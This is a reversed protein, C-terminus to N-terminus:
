SKSNRACCAHVGTLTWSISTSPTEAAATSKPTKAKTKISAPNACYSKDWSALLPDYSSRQSQSTQKCAHLSSKLAFSSLLHYSVVAYNFNIEAMCHRSRLVLVCFCGKCWLHEDVHSRKREHVVCAECNNNRQQQQQQQQQQQKKGKQKNTMLMGLSIITDGPLSLVRWREPVHKIM